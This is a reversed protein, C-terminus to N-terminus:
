RKVLHGAMAHTHAVDFLFHRLGQPVVILDRAEGLETQAKRLLLGDKIHCKLSTGGKAEAILPQTRRSCRAPQYNCRSQDPDDLVVGPRSNTTVCTTQWRTWILQAGNMNQVKRQILLSRMEMASRQMLEGNSEEADSAIIIM